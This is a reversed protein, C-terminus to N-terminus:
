PTFTSILTALDQFGTARTLSPNFMHSEVKGGSGNYLMYVLQDYGRGLFDGAVFTGKTADVGTLDTAVDYYGIAKRLTPDFMHAEVKGGSGNYLM